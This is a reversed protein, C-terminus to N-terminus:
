PTRGLRRDRSPRDDPPPDNGAPPRLAALLRDELEHIQARFADVDGAHMGHVALRPPDEEHLSLALTGPTLGVLSTTSALELPTRSRLPVVVIAPTVGQGPTVIERIVAVNARFFEVTFWGLFSGIARTRTAARRLLGPRATM